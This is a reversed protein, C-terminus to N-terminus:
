RERRSVACAWVGAVHYTNRKLLTRGIEIAFAVVIVAIVLAYVKGIEGPVYAILGRM